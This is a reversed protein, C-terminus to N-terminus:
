ANPRLMQTACVYTKLQSTSSTSLSIKKTEDSVIVDWLKKPLRNYIYVNEQEKNVVRTTPNASHDDNLTSELVAGIEGLQAESFPNDFNSEDCLAEFLETAHDHDFELKSIEEIVRDKQNKTVTEKRSPNLKTSANTFRVAANFVGLPTSSSM